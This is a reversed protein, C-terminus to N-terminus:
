DVFIGQFHKQKICFTSCGWLGDNLSKSRYCKTCLNGVLSKVSFVDQSNKKKLIFIVCPTWALWIKVCKLRICCKIGYFLTSHTAIKMNKYIYILCSQYPKNNKKKNTMKLIRHCSTFQLTYIHGTAEKSTLAFIFPMCNQEIM